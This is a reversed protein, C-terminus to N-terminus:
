AVFIRTLHLTKQTKQRKPTVAERSIYRFDPYIEGIPCRHLSVDRL